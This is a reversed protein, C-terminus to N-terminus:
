QAELGNGVSQKTEISLTTPSFRGDSVPQFKQVYGAAEIGGAGFNDMKESVVLWDPVAVGTRFPFLRLTRELGSIDNYLIFVALSGGTGTPHPHSFIVALIVFIM